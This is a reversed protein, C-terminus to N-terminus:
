KSYNIESRIKKFFAILEQQQVETLKAEPHMPLYSELPMEKKEIMEITEELKHDKKKESYTNWISFDLHKKGYTVHNSIWWSVPAVESYWPYTTNNSHCDYCSAKITSAIKADTGYVVLFDTDPTETSTNKEPRYFQIAIFVFLLGIVIKKLM